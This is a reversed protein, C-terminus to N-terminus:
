WHIFLESGHLDNDCPSIGRCIVRRSPTHYIEPGQEYSQSKEVLDCREWGTDPCLSIAGSHHLPAYTLKIAPNHRCIELINVFGEMNSKMYAQPNELSYRVGAQAALHAIHTIKNKEVIEKLFDFQCIDGKVVEIGVEKLLAARDEKLQPAYYDNFNDYGIVTDGRENLARSLHFGIFGAAGTVLIKKTM